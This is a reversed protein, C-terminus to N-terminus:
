LRVRRRRQRRPVRRRFHGEKVYIHDDGEGGFAVLKKVGKFITERGGFKVRVTEGSADSGVHEIIYLEGADAASMSDAIGRIGSRSGMNLHARRQRGGSGVPPADGTPNGALYVRKPLEVYGITFRMSVSIRIFLIKVSASAEVVLPVRGEGAATVSASIDVGAFTIGFARLSAGGAFEVTFFYEQLGTPQGLSNLVPREGFAVRFHLNAVLGFSRTGLVLEGDLSIDFYGKYNFFGAAAVTMLGFFDM